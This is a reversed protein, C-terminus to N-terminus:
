LWSKTQQYLIGMFIVVFALIRTKESGMYAFDILQNIIAVAVLLSGRRRPSTRSIRVAVARGLQPSRRPPAREM